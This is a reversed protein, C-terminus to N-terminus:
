EVIRLWPWRARYSEAKERVREPPSPCHPNPRLIGAYVEAVGFPAHLALGGDPGSGLGVCTCAVPFLGIADAASAVPPYPMGFKAQYWLPVRKQNKLELPVRLDAFLEAARRIVADEAQWSPDDDWYFIDYDKVNEGAPRGALRNWAAGYVCGAVLWPQAVGLEPLRELITHNVPNALADAVLTEGTAAARARM